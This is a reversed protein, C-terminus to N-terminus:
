RGRRIIMEAEKVALRKERDCEAQYTGDKLCSPCDKMWIAGQSQLFKIINEKLISTYSSKGVLYDLHPLDTGSEKAMAYSMPFSIDGTNEDYFAHSGCPCTYDFDYTGDWGIERDCGICKYM